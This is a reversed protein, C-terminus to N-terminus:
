EEKHEGSALFSIKQRCWTPAAREESAVQTHIRGRGSCPSHGARNGYDLDDDNNEGKWEKWAGKRRM